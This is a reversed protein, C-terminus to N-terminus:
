VGGKCQWSQCCVVRRTQQPKSCCVRGPMWSIIDPPSQIVGANHGSQDMVQLTKDKFSIILNDDPTCTVFRPSSQTQFKSVLNGDPQHISVTKHYLDRGQYGLVVVIRGTSDVAVSTPESPQNNIDYTPTTSLLHGQSDYTRFGTRDIDPIIYQNNPTITIDRVFSPSDQLTHKFNGERSFVAVHNEFSSVAVNGNPHVAIGIPYKANPTTKIRECEEWKRGSMIANVPTNTTSRCSQLAILM